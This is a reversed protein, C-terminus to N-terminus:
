DKGPMWDPLEEVSKRAAETVPIGWSEFFPGLDRGVTRSMRVLWQDRKQADDKPREAKPLTRYEEFVKQYAEWGFAQKIEHYLILALFPDKKWVEFDRGDKVYKAKRRVIADPAMAKHGGVVGSRTEMMYLSFINCTVEGTGGFTWDRHQHNHGLEHYM